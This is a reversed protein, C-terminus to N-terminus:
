VGGSVKDELGSLVYVPLSTYLLQLLKIDRHKVTGNEADAKTIDRITQNVVKFCLKWSVPYEIGEYMALGM